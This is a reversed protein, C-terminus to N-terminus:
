VCLGQLLSEVRRELNSIQIAHHQVTSALPSATHEIPQGACENEPVPPALVGGQQMRSALRDVKNGLDEINSALRNVEREVESQKPTTSGLMQEPRNSMIKNM